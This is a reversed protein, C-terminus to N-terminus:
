AAERVNGALPRAPQGELAAGIERWDTPPEIAREAPNARGLVDRAPWGGATYGWGTFGQATMCVDCIRRGTM